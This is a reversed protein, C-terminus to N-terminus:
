EKATLFEKVNWLIGKDYPNTFRTESESSTQGPESQVTLHFEPYRKWNIQIPSSVIYVQWLVQLLSFLMTSIALNRSSSTLGGINDMIQFKTAFQSSCAVYSAETFVFGVLLIIFLVHNKKGICNGFAPCHHDFGKVYADCHRCYRVRQLPISNGSFRPLQSYICTCTAVEAPGRCRPLISFSIFCCWLEIFNKLLSSMPFTVLQLCWNRCWYIIEIDTNIMDLQFPKEVNAVESHAEFVSVPSEVLQNHHSSENTVYGPDTTLISCLGIVLMFFEANLIVDLLPSIVQRVLGIYVGWIFIINFFVFAPASAGVGVLRKCCRGVGTVGLLAVAISNSSAVRRQRQDGIEEMKM